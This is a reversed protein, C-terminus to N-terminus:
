IFAYPIESLGFTFYAAAARIAADGATSGTIKESGPGGMILDKGINAYAMWPHGGGGAGPAAAEGGVTSTGSLSGGGQHLTSGGTTGFSGAPAYINGLQSAHTGSSLLSSPGGDPFSWGMGGGSLNSGGAGADFLNQSGMGLGQAEVAMKAGASPNGLQTNAGSSWAGKGMFGEDLGTTTQGLSEPTVRNVANPGIGMYEPNAGMTPSAPDTGLLGSLTQKTGGFRDAVDTGYQSLRDSISKGGFSWPERAQHFKGAEDIYAEKGRVFENLGKAGKYAQGAQTIDAGITSERFKPPEVKTTTYGQQMPRRGGQAVPGLLQSRSKKARQRQRREREERSLLM